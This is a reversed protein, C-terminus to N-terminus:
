LRVKYEKKGLLATGKYYYHYFYGEQNDKKAVMLKGSREVFYIASDFLQLGTYIKGLSSFARILTTTDNITESAKISMLMYNVAKRKKIMDNGSTSYYISALSGYGAAIGATIGKAKCGEITKLYMEEAKDFQNNLYYVNAMNNLTELGMEFLGFKEADEQAKTYYKIAATFDNTIHYVGALNMLAKVHLSYLKTSLASEITWNGITVSADLDTTTLREMLELYRSITVSDTKEKILVNKLSDVNIQSYLIQFPFAALLLLFFKKM